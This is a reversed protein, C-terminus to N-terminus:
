CMRNRDYLSLVTSDVLASHKRQPRQPQEHVVQLQPQIQAEPDPNLGQPFVFRPAGPIHNFNNDLAQQFHAMAIERPTLRLVPQAGPVGFLYPINDRLAMVLHALSTYHGGHDIYIYGQNYESRFCAKQNSLALGPKACQGLTVNRLMSSAIVDNCDRVIQTLHSSSVWNVTVARPGVCGLIRKLEAILQSRTSVQPGCSQQGAKADDTVNRASEAGVTQCYRDSDNNM